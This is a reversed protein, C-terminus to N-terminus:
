EKFFYIETMVKSGVAHCYEKISAFAGNSMKRRALYDALTLGRQKHLLLTQTIDTPEDPDRRERDPELRSYKSVELLPLCKQIPHWTYAEPCLLDSNPLRGKYRMKPCTHIYFGMYYYKMTPLTKQLERTLKIECLSAFTGLSLFQFEPDYYFYVSSVCYPLLDLVGVAILRDDLWYQHHFSGLLPDEEPLLPSDVLFRKWNSISCKDESDKHIKMQYRKYVAHSADTTREAESSYPTTRVLRIELKHKGRPLDLWEEFSKEANKLRSQSPQDETKQKELWRQKRLAKKKTTYINHLQEGERSQPPKDSQNSEGSSKNVTRESKIQGDCKSARLPLNLDKVVDCSMHGEVRTAVERCIEAENIQCAEQLSEDDEGVSENDGAGVTEQRGNLLFKHFRKLIKKHSKTPKFALADCRITYSPCCTKTMEPKYCYKGSRRWGRDILDQYTQAPLTYAWMGKCFSEGKCYGCTHGKSDPLWQIIGDDM